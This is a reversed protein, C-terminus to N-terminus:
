SVAMRRLAKIYAIRDTPQIPITNYIEQNRAPYGHSIPLQHANREPVIWSIDFKNKSKHSLSSTFSFKRSSAVPQPHGSSRSSSSTSSSQRSLSAPNSERSRYSSSSESSSPRSSTTPQLWDQRPPLPLPKPDYEHVPAARRGNINFKSQVGARGNISRSPFGRNQSHRSQTQTYHTHDDNIGSTQKPEHSAPETSFLFPMSFPELMTPLPTTLPEMMSSFTDPVDEWLDVGSAKPSHCEDGYLCTCTKM